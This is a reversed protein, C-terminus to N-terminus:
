SGITGLPISSSTYRLIPDATLNARLPAFVRPLTLRAEVNFGVFNRILMLLTM